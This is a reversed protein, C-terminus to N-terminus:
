GLGVERIVMLRNAVSDQKVHQTIRKSLAQILDDLIRLNEALVNLLFRFLDILGNHKDDIWISLAKRLPGKGILAILGYQGVLRRIQNSKATHHCVLEDHIKHSAQVNQQQVSKVAVFRRNLRGM